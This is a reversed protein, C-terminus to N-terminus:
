NGGRERRWVKLRELVGAPLLGVAVPKIVYFINKPLLGLSKFRIFRTQMEKVRLGMTRGHKGKAPLTYRLLPEQINAGTHGLEYLRLLLDYDECGICRPEECYGGAAELAQRRFLLAPHIFPQVFLFDRVTPFEPLRRVGAPTGDQELLACCGAFATEPHNRLYELQKELRDPLSFDDDDMRALYLGKAATICRNLKVTLTEAGAGDVLQIRADEAAFRKIREKAESHSGDECILFELKRYSQRLISNIARELFYLDPRRYCIGMIVSVLPREECRM